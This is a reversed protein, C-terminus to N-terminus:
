RVPAARIRARRGYRNLFMAVPMAMKLKAMPTQVYKGKVGGRNEKRWVGLRSGVSGAAKGLTTRAIGRKREGQVLVKHLLRM